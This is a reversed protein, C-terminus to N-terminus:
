DAVAAVLLQAVGCINRPWGKVEHNYAFHSPFVSLSPFLFQALAGVNMGASSM